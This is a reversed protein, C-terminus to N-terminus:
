ANKQAEPLQKSFAAFLNPAFVDCAIFSHLFSCFTILHLTYPLYVPAPFSTWLSWSRM